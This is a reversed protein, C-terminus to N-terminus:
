GACVIGYPVQDRIPWVVWMQIAESGHAIADNWAAGPGSSSSVCYKGGEILSACIFGELEDDGSWFCGSGLILIGLGLVFLIGKAFRAREM